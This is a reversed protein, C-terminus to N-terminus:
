VCPWCTCPRTPIPAPSPLSPPPRLFLVCFVCVAHAADPTAAPPVPAGGAGRGVQGLFSSAATSLARNAAGFLGSLGSALPGGGGGGSGRPQQHGRVVAEAAAGVLRAGEHEWAQKGLQMASLVALQRVAPAACCDACCAVCCAPCRAACVCVRQTLLLWMRLAPKM